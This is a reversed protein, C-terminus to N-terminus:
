KAFRVRQGQSDGLARSKKSSAVTYKQFFVREKSYMGDKDSVGPPM